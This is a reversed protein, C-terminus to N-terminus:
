KVLAAREARVTELVIARDRKLKWYMGTHRIVM